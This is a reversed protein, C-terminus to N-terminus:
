IENKNEKRLIMEGIKQAVQPVVANGLCRLRDVRNPLRHIVREIGSEWSSAFCSLSRMTNQHEGPPQRGSESQYPSRSTRPREASQSQSYRLTRLYSELAKASELQERRLGGEREYERVFAFLVEASEMRGLGRLARQIAQSFDKNWLHRLVETRRQSEAYSVGRAVHRELWIPFGDARGGLSSEISWWSSGGSWTPTGRGIKEGAISARTTSRGERKTHALFCAECQIQEEGDFSPFWGYGACHPCSARSGDRTEDGTKTPESKRFNNSHALIFVRRRLHPAGVGTASLVGWEADYGAAALDRLINGFFRGSDSSMLGPVNEAVVWRPKVECVLRFMESWLTSRNGELGKRSGALSVDQCPFGGCIVDVSPPCVVDRIDTFRQVGPWHKALVRTAYSDFEIQWKTEFKGTWELGLELGGIGSFCSGVTLM